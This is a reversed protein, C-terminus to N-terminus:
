FYNASITKDIELIRRQIFDMFDHLQSDSYNETRARLISKRYKKIRLKVAKSRPLNNLAQNVNNTCRM